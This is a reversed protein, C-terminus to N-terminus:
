VAVAKLGTHKAIATFHADAHLLTLRHHMAVSAILVDASPVNVGKKRLLYGTRWAVGWVENSIAM